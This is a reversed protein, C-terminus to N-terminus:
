SKGTKTKLHLKKKRKMVKKLEAGTSEVKEMLRLFESAKLGSDPSDTKANEPKSKAM